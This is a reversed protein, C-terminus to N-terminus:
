QSIIADSCGRVEATPIRGEVKLITGNRGCSCSISPASYGIDETLLSHGPYSKQIDSFVQILGAEGSEVPKFTDLDRIIVESGEPAHLNGHECEMYISGTQEIMGYYNRVNNCGTVMRIEDKFIEDNVKEEELKKWGGGHLLFSNTLDIRYNSQKLGEIFFRWVLYTFGFIFTRKDKNSELFNDLVDFNISMDENLLFTRSRSFLTFGNVAATRASFKYRDKVTTESDIVLMPYRTNGFADKFIDILKAQQLRSTEQDLHIISPKGTTGSSLMTKYVNDKSISKIDFEKFARVPLWPLSELSTASAYNPFLSFIYDRYIKCNDSHHKTLAKLNDLTSM